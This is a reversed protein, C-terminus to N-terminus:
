TATCISSFIPISRQFSSSARRLGLHAPTGDTVAVRVKAPCQLRLKLADSCCISRPMVEMAARRRCVMRMSRRDTAHLLVTACSCHQAWPSKFESSRQPRMLQDITRAARRRLPFSRLRVVELFSARSTGIWCSCSLKGSRRDNKASCGSELFL